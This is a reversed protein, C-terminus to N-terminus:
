RTAWAELVALELVDAERWGEDVQGADLDLSGNISLLAHEEHVVQCEAPGVVGACSTQLPLTRRALLTAGSRTSRRLHPDHATLPPSRDSLSTCQM